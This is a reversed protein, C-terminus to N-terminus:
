RRLRITASGGFGRLLRRFSSAATDHAHVVRCTGGVMVISISKELSLYRRLRMTASGGLVAFCDGALSSAVTDHARLVRCTGGLSVISISKEFSVYRRLRMTASGGLVAFCDDSPHRLPTTIISFVVLGASRSSRFRSRSRSMAGFVCPPPAVLFRSATTLWPRLLPTTLVFFVVLGVSRSSRISQELAVDCRLRM